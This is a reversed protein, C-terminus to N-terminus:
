FFYCNTKTQKTSRNEHYKNSASNKANHTISQAVILMTLVGDLERPTLNVFVETGVLGV